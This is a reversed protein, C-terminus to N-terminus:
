SPRRGVSDLDSGALRYYSQTMKRLEDQSIFRSLDDFRQGGTLREVTDIIIDPPASRNELVIRSTPPVRLAEYAKLAAVPDEHSKLLGALTTADIIAQAGGNGGRPYMAHAADGLLTIRGFSWRAVPDRDVMPYTLLLEARRIMDACDLWDFSWDKYIPFFDELKGPAHWDVPAHQDTVVETNWNLLQNGEDDINNRIPYVVLKGTTYLGGVRTVSAGTLFPKGRTLGRWLNIGHFIPPGESPYFQKRVASHIGDCAIIIDARQSALKKGNADVFHATAGGEDQDVGVCRQGTVISDAGIREQAAGHLVMLLEGRHISFHPFAYGAFHGSPERLILQGHHTFYAFERAEIGVRRLADLLGLGALERIAHPQLNIGVGLPMLSPAAEHIRIRYPMGAAHLALALTHGGIGGGIIIIDM